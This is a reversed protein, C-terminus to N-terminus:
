VLSVACLKEFKWKQYARYRDMVADNAYDADIYEFEDLSTDNATDVMLRDFDDETVNAFAADEDRDWIQRDLEHLSLRRGSNFERQYKERYLEDLLRYASEDKGQQIAHILTERDENIIEKTTKGEVKAIHQIIQYTKVGPLM